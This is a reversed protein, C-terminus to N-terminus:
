EEDKALLAPLAELYAAPTDRFLEKDNKGTYDSKFAVFEIGKEYDVYIRYTYEQDDDRPEIPRRMYISGIGNKFESIVQAALCGPGNAWRGVNQEVGFGNCIQMDKLFEALLKGHGDLYGDMQRYICVMATGPGTDKSNRGDYIYTLSRTGM